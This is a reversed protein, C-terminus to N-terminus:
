RTASFSGIRAYSVPSRSVLAATLTPDTSAHDLCVQRRPLASISTTQEEHCSDKPITNVM